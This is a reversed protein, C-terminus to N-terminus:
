LLQAESIFTRSHVYTYYHSYLLADAKCYSNCKLKVFKQVPKVVLICLKSFQICLISESIILDKFGSLLAPRYHFKNDCYIMAFLIM